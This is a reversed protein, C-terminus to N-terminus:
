CYMMPGQVSILSLLVILSVHHDHCARNGALAILCPFDFARRLLYVLFTELGEQTDSSHLYCGRLQLWRGVRQLLVMLLIGIGVGELDYQVPNYDATV